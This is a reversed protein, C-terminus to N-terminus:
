ESGVIPVLEHGDFENRRGLLMELLMTLPGGGGDRLHSSVFAGGSSSRELLGKKGPSILHLCYGWCLIGQSQLDGLRIVYIHEASGDASHHPFAAVSDFGASTRSALQSSEIRPRSQCSRWQCRKETGCVRQRRARARNTPIVGDHASGTSRGIRAIARVDYELIDTAVYAVAGIAHLTGVLLNGQPELVAVEDRELTSLVVPDVLLRLCPGFSWHYTSCPALRRM